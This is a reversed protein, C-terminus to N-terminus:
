SQARKGGKAMGGGDQVAKKNQPTEDRETGSDKRLVDVSANVFPLLAQPITDDSGALRGALTTCAEKHAIAIVERLTAELKEYLGVFNTGDGQTAARTIENAVIHIFRTTTAEINVTDPPM